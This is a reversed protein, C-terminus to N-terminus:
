YIAGREYISDIVNARDEQLTLYKSYVKFETKTKLENDINYIIDSNYLIEAQFSTDVKDFLVLDIDRQLKEILEAIIALREDISLEGLIAIDIDSNEKLKRRYCSGFLYVVRINFKSLTTIIDSNIKNYDM